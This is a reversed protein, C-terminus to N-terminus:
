PQLPEGDDSGDEAQELWEAFDESMSALGTAEDDSLQGSALAIQVARQLARVTWADLLRTYFHEPEAIWSGFTPRGPRQGV